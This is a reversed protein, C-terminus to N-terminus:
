FTIYQEPNLPVGNQWLEFHLHPGTSLEGENGMIAIVMGAKVQEGPKVLVDSNHKYISILNYNHQIQVVYGTTVSWEAFIVTGDLVAAIFSNEKAVIDTGFHGPTTEFKNTVVGQIPTFLNLRSIQNFDEDTSLYSFKYKDPGILNDFISDDNMPAMEVETFDSFSDTQDDIIEGSIVQRIQELYNDRRRLESELSDVVLANKVMLQHLRPSPYGPVIQKLPTYFFVGVVLVISVIFISFLISYWKFRSVSTTYVEVFNSKDTISLRYSKALQYFFQKPKVAM